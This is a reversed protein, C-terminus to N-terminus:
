RWSTHLARNFNFTIAAPRRVWPFCVAAPLAVQSRPSTSAAGLGGLHSSEQGALLYACYALNRNLQPNLKLDLQMHIVMGVANAIVSNDGICENLQLHPM